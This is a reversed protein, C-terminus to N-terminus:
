HLFAIKFFHSFRARQNRFSMAPLNKQPIPEAKQEWNRKGYRLNPVWMNVHFNRSKYRLATNVHVLRRTTTASNSPFSLSAKSKTGNIVFTTSSSCWRITPTATTTSGPTTGIFERPSFCRMCKRSPNRASWNSGM